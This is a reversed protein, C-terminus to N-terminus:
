AADGGDFPRRSTPRRKPPELGHLAIERMLQRRLRNAYNPMGARVARGIALRRGMVEAESLPKGARGGDILRWTERRPNM